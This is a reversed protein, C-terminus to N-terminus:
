LLCAKEPWGAQYLMTPANSIGDGNFMARIQIGGDQSLQEDPINSFAYVGWHGHNGPATYKDTLKYGDEVSFRPFVAQEPMVGLMGKAKLIAGYTRKNEKGADLRDYLYITNMLDAMAKRTEESILQQLIGHKYPGDEKETEHLLALITAEAVSVFAEKEESNILVKVPFYCDMSKAGLQPSGKRGTMHWIAKLFDLRDMAQGIGGNMPNQVMTVRSAFKANEPDKELDEYQVAGLKDEFDDDSLLASPFFNKGIILPTTDELIIADGNKGTKRLESAVSLRAKILAEEKSLSPDAKSLFDAKEDVLLQLKYQRYLAGFYARDSENPLDLLFKATPELTQGEKIDAYTLMKELVDEATIAVGSSSAKHLDEALNAPVVSGAASLARLASKDNLGYVTNSAIFSFIALLVIAKRFIINM